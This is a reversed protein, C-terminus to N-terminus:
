CEVSHCEMKRGATWGVEDSSYFKKGPLKLSYHTCILLHLVASINQPRCDVETLDAEEKIDTVSIPFLSFILPVAAASSEYSAYSCVSHASIELKKSPGYNHSKINTKQQCARVRSRDRMM